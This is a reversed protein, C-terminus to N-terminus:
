EEHHRPRAVLLDAREQDRSLVGARRVAFRYANKQGIHGHLHRTRVTPDVRLSHLFLLSLMFVKAAIRVDTPRKSVAAGAVACGALGVMTRTCPANASEDLQYPTM